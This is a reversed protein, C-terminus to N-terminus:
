FGVAVPLWTSRQHDFGRYRFMAHVHIRSSLYLCLVFFTLGERVVDRRRLVIGACFQRSVFRRKSPHVLILSRRSAKLMQYTNGSVRARERRKKNVIDCIQINSRGYNVIKNM